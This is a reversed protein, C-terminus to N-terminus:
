LLSLIACGYLSNIESLWLGVERAEIEVVPFCSQKARLYLSM